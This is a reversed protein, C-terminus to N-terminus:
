LTPALAPQFNKQVEIFREVNESNVMTAGTDVFYPVTARVSHREVDEPPYKYLDALMRMGSYGMTFPKQAITAQILGHQIWELTRVPTDMAIVIKDRVNNRSLVEAVEPCAISELCVFADVSRRRKELIEKTLDFAVAGDGRINVVDIIRIAPFQAFVDKYGRLRDEVNEQGELSFVIVNGANQLQHATLEASQVGVKYNDTGVFTLRRSKPADSDITIVNVGKSVAEDIAPQLMEPNAPSILIGAPLDEEPVALLDELAQKQAAPDYTEPGLMDAAVGIERAAQVLGAKAAQWYPIDTNTAILYYHETGRFESGACGILTMVFLTTIPITIASRKSFM